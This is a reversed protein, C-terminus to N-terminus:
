WRYLDKAGTIHFFVRHDVFDDGPLTSDLMNYSYSIGASWWRNIKYNLGIQTLYRDETHENVSQVFDDRRYNASWDLGIRKALAYTASIDVMWYKSLGANDSSYNLNGFGGSGSLRVSGRKFRRMYDSEYTAAWDSDGDDNEWYSAGGAFHITDKETVERTWGLMVGQTRYDPRDDRYTFNNYFYSLYLTDHPNPYYSVGGEFRNGETDADEKFDGKEYSASGILGFRTTVKHEIDLLFEHRMYDNNNDDGQSEYYSNRYSLGIDRRDGYEYHGSIGVSNTIYRKRNRRKYLRQDRVGQNLTDFGTNFTDTVSLELAKSLRRSYDLGISHEIEADNTKSNQRARINYDLTIKSFQGEDEFRIDASGGYLFASEEDKDDLYLNSDWELEGSVSGSLTKITGDAWTQYPFISFLFIGFIFILGVKSAM